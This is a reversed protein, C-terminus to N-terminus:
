PILNIIKEESYFNSSIKSNLDMNNFYSLNRSVLKLHLTKTSDTLWGFSSSPITLESNSINILNYTTQQIGISNTYWFELFFRDQISSSDWKVLLDKNREQTEPLYTFSPAKNQTVLSNIIKTRNSLLIELEYTTNPVIEILNSKYILSDESFFLEVGNINVSGNKITVKEYDSKDTLEVFVISSISDGSIKIREITAEIILQSSDTINREYFIKENNDVSNDCSYLLLSIFISTIIIYKKM